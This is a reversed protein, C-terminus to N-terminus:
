LDKEILLRRFNSFCIKDFGDVEKDVASYFNPIDKPYIPKRDIRAFPGDTEFLIQKVPIHAIINLGNKTMLMKPNISFYYGKEVAQKLVSIKGTYWHFIAHKVENELLIDLVEREAGKSHITYIRGKNFRQSSVYRFAEVQISKERDSIGSFFDLGVEGIYRTTAIYKEFLDKNLLYENSVQPHYGLCLRIYKFNSFRGFYKEYLEPLNTVFLTYIKSTEYELALEYPNPYFDIHVHTDIYTM